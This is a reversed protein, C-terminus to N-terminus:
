GVVSGRAGLDWLTHMIKEKEHVLICYATQSLTTVTSSIPRLITASKCTKLKRRLGFYRNKPISDVQRNTYIDRQVYTGRELAQVNKRM